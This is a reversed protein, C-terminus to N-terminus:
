NKMVSGILQLLCTSFYVPSLQAPLKKDCKRNSSCIYLGSRTRLNNGLALNLFVSVFIIQTLNIIAKTHASENDLLLWYAMESIGCAETKFRPWTCFREQSFSNKNM